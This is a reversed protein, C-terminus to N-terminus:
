KSHLATAIRAAKEASMPLSCVKGSKKGIAKRHGSLINAATETADKGMRDQYLKTRRSM